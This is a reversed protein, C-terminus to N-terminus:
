DQAPDGNRFGRVPLASLEAEFRADISEDFARHLDILDHVAGLQAASIVGDRLDRLAQDLLGALGEARARVTPEFWRRAPMHLVHGQEGSAHAFKLAADYAGRYWETAGGFQDRMTMPAPCNYERLLRHLATELTQADRRTETQILFSQDLDFAEFWRRHFAAWRAVPDHSLGVKLIDEAGSCAAVYM